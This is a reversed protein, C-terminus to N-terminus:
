HKKVLLTHKLNISGNQYEVLKINSNFQYFYNM